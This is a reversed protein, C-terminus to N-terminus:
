KISILESQIQKVEEPYIIIDSSLDVWEAKPSAQGEETFYLGDDAQIETDPLFAEYIFVIEHGRKGEYCFINEIVNLRHGINIAVGFEETFERKLAESATEGFEIGGGPLRYFVEKKSYDIGKIALVKNDKCVLAVVLPRIKNEAFPM